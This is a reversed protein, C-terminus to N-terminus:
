KIRVEKDSFVVKKNTLFKCVKDFHGDIVRPEVFQSISNGAQTLLVCGLPFQKDVFQKILKSNEGYTIILNPYNRADIRSIYNAMNDLQILGLMHLENLTTFTIGYEKLYDYNDPLMVRSHTSVLNYGKDVKEFINIDVKLNCLTHFIRAYMPTLESLIRTVSPPTSGPKEFEKALINGWMLQVTEDSVYRSSDMYRDLWEEDVGSNESFDTGEKAAGQAINAIAAQNRLEKLKKRASAIELMKIDAPLNSKEIESVYTSVARKKLGFYPFLGGTFNALKNVSERGAGEGAAKVMELALEDM